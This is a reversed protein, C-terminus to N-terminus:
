LPTLPRTESGLRFTHTIVQDPPLTILRPRMIVLVDNADRSNDHQTFLAGLGPVSALGAMGSIARAESTKMLGAVVAWEGTELRVTCKLERNSIVPIGNVQQGALLRFSTELDLTVAETGHVRPTVKVSLGLDQFTFSPIPLYANPGSFEAPGFYGGTLVPYRDGVHLSAPQGDVSRVESHMLFKGGSRTMNAMLTANAIGIGLLTNGGGLLALRGIGKPISPQNGLAHTLAVIPFTSPIAFGYKLTAASSVELFDVDVMVQARPYLLDELLYRAPLVKSIADRLVVVNKQTDWSVKRIGMSQQVATILGTLDQVSTPEPLDVAMAVHPEREARKQPTDKAVMFMHESLPVLFSGTAAELAHLATRYDVRQMQFRFPRTPQYDTDFVCKLGFAAAVQQFLEQSDGKLDFDRVGAGLLEVPPLPKSADKLDKLTTKPFKAQPPIEVDLPPLAPDFRPMVKAQLAARSRLAQCKMWYRTNEPELVAAQSYLLYAEAFQGSREAKEAKKALKGAEGAFLAGSLALFFVFVLPRARVYM